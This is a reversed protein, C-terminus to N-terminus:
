PSKAKQMKRAKRELANFVQEVNKGIERSLRRREPRQRIRGDAAQWRCVMLPNSEDGFRECVDPRDGYTVCRFDFGLFVCRGDPDVAHVFGQDDDFRRDIERQIKHANREFMDKPIPCPGCCEGKCKPLLKLCNM